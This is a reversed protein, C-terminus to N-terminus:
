LGRAGLGHDQRGAPPPLPCAPPTSLIHAGAPCPGPWCPPRPQALTPLLGTAGSCVQPCESRGRQPQAAPCGRFGAQQGGGPLGRAPAVGRRGGQAQRAAGAVTTRVWRTTCTSTRPSAALACAPPLGSRWRCRPPRACGSPGSLGTTGAAHHPTPWLEKKKLQKYMPDKRGSHDTGPVSVPDFLPTLGASAVCGPCLQRINLRLWDPGPIIWEPPIGCPCQPFRHHLAPRPAQPRGVCSNRTDPRCGAPLGALELRM